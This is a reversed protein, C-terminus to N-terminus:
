FCLTSLTGKAFLFSSLLDWWTDHMSMYITKNFNIISQFSWTNIIFLGL